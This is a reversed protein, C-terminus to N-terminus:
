QKRRGQPLGLSGRKASNSDGVDEGFCRKHEMTIHGSKISQLCCGLNNVKDKLIKTSLINLFRIGFEDVYLLVPRGDKRARTIFKRFPCCISERYIAFDPLDNPLVVCKCMTSSQLQAVDCESGAYQSLHLHYMRMTTICGLGPSIM